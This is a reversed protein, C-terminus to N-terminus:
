LKMPLRKSKLVIAGLAFFTIAASMHKWDFEPAQVASNVTAQNVWTGPGTSSASYESCNQKQTTYPDSCVPQAQGATYIDGSLTSLLMQGRVDPYNAVDISWSTINGMQTTFLFTAVTPQGSGENQPASSSLFSTGPTGFYYSVPTVSQNAENPNLAQALVITGTIQTYDFPLVATYGAEYTGTMVQGTYDLTEQGFVCCPVMLFVLLGILKLM